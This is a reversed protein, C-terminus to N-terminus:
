RLGGMGLGPAIRRLLACFGEPEPLAKALKRPRGIDAWITEAALMAACVASEMCLPIQTQVWDSALLLGRTATKVPPRLRDTGPKCCAIGMPIRHVRAHRLATRTAAPLYDALERLAAAIIQEDGLEGVRQAYMLNCAIVSPRDRWAPRINSLDYFDFNLNDASWMRGWSKRDSLKRDFWLMTSLYASPELAALAEPEPLKAAAPLLRPLTQPEVAAVCWRARIRRGDRLKVALPRAEDDVDISAVPAELMLEGGSERVAAACQPVFLDGLGRAPFGLRIDNHGLAQRVFRLLAGASCAELPLNLVTMAATNWGWERFRSSVGLREVLERGSMRDLEAVHESTMSMALLGIRWNSVKDLLGIQPLALGAPLLHLPAPLRRLRMTYAPTPTALTTLQAEDWVVQDASGLSELLALLNGYYNLLVHPGIDVTDGTVADTWSRARGGLNGSAELLVIRLGSERLAAAVSLGAIGGGVIVVDTETNTV